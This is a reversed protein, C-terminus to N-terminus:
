HAKLVTVQTELNSSSSKLFIRSLESDDILSNRLPNRSVENALLKFEGAM